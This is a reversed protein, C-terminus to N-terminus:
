ALTIRDETVTVPRDRLPRAAPGNAVSGDLHFRSGHCPCDILGDVVANVQCGAHTCETSFGRFQGAAPQTVVIEYEAFVKGGGVPVDAVSGIATGAGGSPLPPNLGSPRQPTQPAGGCAALLGATGLTAAGALLARRAVPPIPDDPM